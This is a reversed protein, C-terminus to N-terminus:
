TLEAQSNTQHPALPEPPSHDLFLYIPIWLLGATFMWAQSLSGAMLIIVQVALYCLLATPSRYAGKVALAILAPLILIFDHPWGYAASSISVLLLIPLDRQWDWQGRRRRAFWLFWALGVVSPLFQLWTHQLGFISRLVGGVGCIYGLANPLAQQFYDLSNPNYWIAILFLAASVFLAGALVSWRRKRVIWILIALFVLYLLQPKIGLGLLCMGAFFYKKKKMLLLFATLCALILPTVQGVGEAVGMQVFSAAVLLPIWLKSRSGDFYLWLGIASLGDLAITLVFWLLHALHYSAGADLAFLPLTWPPYLMFQPHRFATSLSREIQLIQTASYPHKGTVFLRATAWYAVFDSSQGSQFGYGFLSMGVGRLYLLPALTLAVFPWQASTTKQPTTKSESALKPM